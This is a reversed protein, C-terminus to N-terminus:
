GFTFTYVELGPSSSILQLIGNVPKDQAVVEFISHKNVNVVGNVVDKGKEDKLERGNMFLKVKIERDTANGMVIYVKTAYFNIEIAANGRDSIVRDQMIKWNGKLAWANPSLQQPFTYQASRDKAVPQPSSYRAARLYGLYTEPTENDTSPENSTIETTAPDSMGLLYQINNETVDYDGEGFHTYVIYGNKDILYHAPWYQNNFNQWTEFNSDLAVPYKIGDQVVANKVNDQNKEFEFEPTHVGIIVFGKDHYKMYWDNLYPLTRMCNICSYTWFDILVVKGKLESIQLPGSNIWADIGSISPSLYPKALGNKLDMGETLNLEDAYAIESGTLISLFGCALLISIGSLCSRFRQKFGVSYGILKVM